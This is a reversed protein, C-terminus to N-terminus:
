REYRRKATINLADFQPASESFPSYDATEIISAFGATGAV